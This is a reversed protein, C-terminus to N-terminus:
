GRKRKSFFKFAKINAKKTLISAAMEVVAVIVVSIFQHIVPLPNEESRGFMGIMQERRRRM